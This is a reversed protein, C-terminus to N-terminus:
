TETSAHLTKQKKSSFINLCILSVKRLLTYMEIAKQADNNQM